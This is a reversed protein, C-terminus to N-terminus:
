SLMLTLTGFIGLLIFTALGLRLYIIDMTSIINSINNKSYNHETKVTVQKPLNNNFSVLPKGSTAYAIIRIFTQSFGMDFIQQLSSIINFLFWLAVEGATFSTLVIPLLLIPTLLKASLSFWTMITASHSIDIIAKM